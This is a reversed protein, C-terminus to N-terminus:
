QPNKPIGLLRPRAVAAVVEAAKKGFQSCRLRVALAERSKSSSKSAIIDARAQPDDIKFYMKTGPVLASLAARLRCQSRAPRCGAGV